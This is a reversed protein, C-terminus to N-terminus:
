NFMLQDFVIEELVQPRFGKIVSDGVIITPTVSMGLRKHRSAAKADKDIFYEVFEVDHEEFWQRARVCYGCTTSSYMVVDFDTRHEESTAAESVSPDEGYASVNGSVACSLAVVCAFATHRILTPIASQIRM